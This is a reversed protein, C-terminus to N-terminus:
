YTDHLIDFMKVSKPLNLMFSDMSLYISQIMPIKSVPFISCKIITLSFNTSQLSNSTYNLYILYFSYIHQCYTYHKNM